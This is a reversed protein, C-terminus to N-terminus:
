SKNIVHHRIALRNPQRAASGAAIGSWIAVPINEYYAWVSRVAFMLDKISSSAKPRSRVSVSNFEHHDATM